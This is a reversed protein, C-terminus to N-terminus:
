EVSRLHVDGASVLVTKGSPTKLILSGDENLGSVMGVLPQQSATQAAGEIRVWEGKFALRQEWAQHFTENSLNSRWSFFASLISQLLAARDVTRNASSEVSTAPFMLESAPPVSDPRINLGIGIVMGQLQEGLWATEVLIGAVKRRNLLVDNPWKIEPELGLREELAQSIALAGLATFLNIQDQETSGPHLIISFALASAPRTVWKRGLRGRGQTQQDAVVLCGDAAGENAWRLAVENTSGIVDYYRVQPIPLGALQSTLQEVNM